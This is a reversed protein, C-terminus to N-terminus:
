ITWPEAEGAAAWETLAPHEWMAAAYEACVGELAVGYTRFRTVVPAYMADAIGFAGFLYAGGRGFRARAETWLHRIRAIERELPETMTPTPRRERINMSMQSRITAFGAHMECSIARAHARARPDTPWLRADPALEAVYEAIALSECIVLEDDVILAPVLGTPTRAQLAARSEPRYLPILEETFDLESQKLVLWPRLSWSSYNKNGIVLTLAM